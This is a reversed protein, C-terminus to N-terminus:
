RNGRRDLVDGTYVVNSFTTVTAGKTGDHESLWVACAVWWGYGPAGTGVGPPVYVTNYDNAETLTFNDDNTGLVSCDHDGFLYLESKEPAKDICLWLDFGYNVITTPVLDCKWHGKALTGGASASYHPNDIRASCGGASAAPVTSSASAASATGTGIALLALAV